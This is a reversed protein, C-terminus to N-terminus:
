SLLGHRSLSGRMHNNLQAPVVFGADLSARITEKVASLVYRKIEGDTRITGVLNAVKRATLRVLNRHWENVQGDKTNGPADNFEIHFKNLVAQDVLSIDVIDVHDTNLALAAVIRELNSRDHEVLYVSLENDVTEFDKLVDAQVDETGLWDKVDWHRKKRLKRLLLKPSAPAM